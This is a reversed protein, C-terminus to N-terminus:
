PSSHKRTAWPIVEKKYCYKLVPSHFICHLFISLICQMKYGTKRCFNGFYHLNHYVALLHAELRYCLQLRKQFFPQLLLIERNYHLRIMYLYLPFSCLREHSSKGTQYHCNNQDASQNQGAYRKSRCCAGTHHGTIGGYLHNFGEFAKQFIRNPIIALIRHAVTGATRIVFQFFVPFVTNRFLICNSQQPFVQLNCFGCDVGPNNVPQPHLERLVLKIRQHGKCVVATGAPGVVGVASQILSDGVTGGAILEDPRKSQPADGAALNKGAKQVAAKAFRIHVEIPHIGICRGGVITIHVVIGVAARGRGTGLTVAGLPISCGIGYGVILSIHELAPIGLLFAAGLHGVQIGAGLPFGQIGM